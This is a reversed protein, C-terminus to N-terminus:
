VPVVVSGLGIEEITLVPHNAALLRQSLGRSSAVTIGRTLANM